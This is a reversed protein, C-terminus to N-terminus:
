KKAQGVANTNFDVGVAYVNWASEAAASLKTSKDVAEKVKTEDIQVKEGLNLIPSKADQTLWTEAALIKAKSLKVKNKIGYTQIAKRAIVSYSDNAQAMYSYTIHDADKKSDKSSTTAQDEDDHASVTAPVLTAVGIFLTSVAYIGALLTTFTKKM